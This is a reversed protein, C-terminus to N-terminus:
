KIKTSSSAQRIEPLKNQKSAKSPKDIKTPLLLMIKDNLENTQAELKLLQKKIQETLEFEAALISSVLHRIKSIESNPKSVKTQMLEVLQPALQYSKGVVSVLTRLLREYQLNVRILDAELQRLATRKSAASPKNQQDLKKNNNPKTENAEALKEIQMILQSEQILDQLSTLELELQEALKHPASINKHAHPKIKQTQHKQQNYDAQQWKAGVPSLDNLAEPSFEKILKQSEVRTNNLELKTLQDIISDLKKLIQLKNSSDKLENGLKQLNNYLNSFKTELLQAILVPKEAIVALVSKLLNIEPRLEQWSKEHVHNDSIRPLAQAKLLIEDLHSIINQLLFKVKQIKVPDATKKQNKPQDSADQSEQNEPEISAQYETTQASVPEAFQKYPSDDSLLYQVDQKLAAEVEALKEPPLQALEQEMQQAMAMAQEREEPSLQALMENAMKELRYLEDESIQGNNPPTLHCNLNIFSLFNLNCLFLLFIKILVTKKFKM